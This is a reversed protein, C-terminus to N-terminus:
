FTFLGICLHCLIPHADSQPLKKGGQTFTESGALKKCKIYVQFFDRM